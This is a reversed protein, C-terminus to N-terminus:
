RLAKSTKCSLPSYVLDFLGSTTSYTRSIIGSSKIFGDLAWMAFLLFKGLTESGKFHFIGKRSHLYISM